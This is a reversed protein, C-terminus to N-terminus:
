YLVVLSQVLSLLALDFRCQILNRVRANINSCVFPPHLCDNEIETCLSCTDSCEAGSVVCLFLPYTSPNMWIQLDM